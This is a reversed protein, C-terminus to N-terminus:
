SIAGDARFVMDHRVREPMEWASPSEYSFYDEHDFVLDLDGINESTARTRRLAALTDVKCESMPRPGAPAPVVRNM